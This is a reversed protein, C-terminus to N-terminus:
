AARRHVRVLVLRAVINFFIIVAFLVLAALLMASDYLPVSLMEGYNNALLAALPYAPDFLSGPARPVNGVVMLVAMTEGFARSFGLIVAAGVGALSSRLVVLKATEWRTAGLSLSAEKVERSVTRFVEESIATVVPVVMIALVIGGALVNFGISIGGASLALVGWVGFVVPPIGSLLDLVPKVAARVRAPAYEALYLASLISLPMALAGALLTVWLTGMIFPYLGFEGKTPKWLPSLLLDNLPHAELIPLSKLVLGAAILVVISVVAISAAAMLRAALLDALKRKFV